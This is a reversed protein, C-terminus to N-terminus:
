QGAAWDCLQTWLRDYGPWEVFPPPAWHPGCDSAFAVSRGQGFSGAVILPHDGVRAVLTADPKAAIRNYGLLIPWEDDLGAVIPHNGDAITPHIGQPAEVRDDGQEISVPLAEEIPSGAYQAKADIGQFTLYGGVMVLGGGKAVYDRISALRNPLVRSKTFTEPHLLLTNAGIDSLLVVDYAALDEPTFPFDRAAVHSPQFTVDWGGKELATKLWRVGEAYETTTFSDFGKQHISHVTWSEGAILIRKTM